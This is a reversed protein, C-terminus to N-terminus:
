INRKEFLSRAIKTAESKREFPFCIGSFALLLKRLMFHLFSSHKSPQIAKQNAYRWKYKSFSSFQVHYIVKRPCSPPTSVCERIDDETGCWQRLIHETAVLLQNDATFTLTSFPVRTFTKTKKLAWKRYNRLARNEVKRGRIVQVFTFNTMTAAADDAFRAINKELPTLPSM